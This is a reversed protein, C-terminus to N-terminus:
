SACACNTHQKPCAHLRLAPCQSSGRSRRPRTGAGAWRGTRRPDQWPSSSQCSCTPKTQNSNVFSHVLNFEMRAAGVSAASRRGGRWKQEGVEREARGCCSWARRCGARRGPRSSPATGQGATPCGLCGRTRCPPPARSLHQPERRVASADASSRSRKCAVMAHRGAGAAQGCADAGWWM